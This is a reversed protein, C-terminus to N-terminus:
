KRKGRAQAARSFPNEEELKAATTVGPGLLKSVTGPETKLPPLFGDAPASASRSPRSVRAEGGARAEDRPSAPEALAGKRTEAGEASRAEQAQDRGALSRRLRNEAEANLSVGSKRAERELDDKLGPAVRLYLMEFPPM